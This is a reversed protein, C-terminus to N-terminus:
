EPLSAYSNNLDGYNMYSPLDVIEIPLYMEEVARLGRARRHVKTWPRLTWPMEPISCSPFHILFPEDMIYRTKEWGFHNKNEVPMPFIFSNSSPAGRLPCYKLQFHRKMDRWTKVQFIQLLQRSSVRQYNIYSNFIAMWLSNEWSVHDHNELSKGYSHQIVLPYVKM